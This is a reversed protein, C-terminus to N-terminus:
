AMPNNRQAQYISTLKELGEQGRKAKEAMSMKEWDEGYGARKAISNRGGDKPSRVSGYARMFSLEARARLEDLGAAQSLFWPWPEDLSGHVLHRYDRVVHDWGMERVKTEVKKQDAEHKARDDVGVSLLGVLIRIMNVPKFRQSTLQSSLRIPLWGRIIERVVMLADEDGTVALQYTEMVSIGERATAPRVRYSGLHAYRGDGVLVRVEVTRPIWTSVISM